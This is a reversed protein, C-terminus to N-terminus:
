PVLETGAIPLDRSQGTVPDQGGPDYGPGHVPVGEIRIDFLDQDGLQFGAGDDDEVGEGSAFAFVCCLHELGVAAPKQEQGGAAWIEVGGFHSEWFQFRREAADARSCEVLEDM